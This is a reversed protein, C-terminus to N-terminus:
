WSPLKAWQNEYRHPDRWNFGGVPKANQHALRYQEILDDFETQSLVFFRDDSRSPAVLVLIYFLNSRQQKSTGWWANSTWQGKVDVWFQSGTKPHGVMLDAVPTNNGMTFSVEYGHRALEGAALFHAAWQASAKRARTPELLQRTLDSM